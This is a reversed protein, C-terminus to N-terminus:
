ADTGAEMAAQMAALLRLQEDRSLKKFNSLSPVKRAKHSPRWDAMSAQISEVSDGDKYAKRVLSQITIVVSKMCCDLVYEEGLEETLQALTMGAFPQATEIQFSAGQYPRTLIPENSVTKSKTINGRPRGNTTSATTSATTNTTEATEVANMNEMVNEMVGEVNANANANVNANVNANAKNNNGANNNKRAAM